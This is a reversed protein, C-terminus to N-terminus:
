YCVYLKRLFFIVLIMTPMLREEFYEQTFEVSDEEDFSPDVMEEFKKDKFEDPNEEEHDLIMQEANFIHWLQFM